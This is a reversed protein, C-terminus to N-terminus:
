AGDELVRRLYDVFEAREEPTLKSLVDINSDEIIRTVDGQLAAGQATLYVNVGRRDDQSHKREVLEKKEMRTLLGTITSADLGSLTSLQSPSLGDEEWLYYLLVYQAPTIDCAQLNEKFRLNVKGQAQTLLYNICDYIKMIGVNYLCAPM